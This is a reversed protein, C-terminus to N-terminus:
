SFNERVERSEKEKELVIDREPDDDLVLSYPIESGKGKGGQYVKDWAGNEAHVVEVMEGASQERYRASIEELLRMERRSFHSPDFTGVPTIQEREHDIIQVRDVRVADLFDPEPHDIEEYLDTAVPGMKWAYYKMGTVSRGTQRFHDFDLLFLLKLIKTKGCMRTHNAFYIISNLLKGRRRDVLM